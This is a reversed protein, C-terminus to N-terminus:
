KLGEYAQLPMHSRKKSSGLPKKLHRASSKTKNMLHLLGKCHALLSLAHLNPSFDNAPATPPLGKWPVDIEDTDEQTLQTDKVEIIAPIDQSESVVEVKVPDAEDATPSALRHVLGHHSTAGSCQSSGTKQQSNRM